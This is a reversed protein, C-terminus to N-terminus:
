HSASWAAVVAFTSCGVFGLALALWDIKRSPWGMVIATLGILCGLDSPLGLFVGMAREDAPTITTPADGVLFLLFLATILYWPLEAILLLLPLFCPLRNWRRRL